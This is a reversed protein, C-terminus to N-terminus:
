NGVEEAYYASLIIKAAKFGDRIAKTVNGEEILDGGALVSERSTSLDDPSVRVFGREDLILNEDKFDPIAGIANVVADVQLELENGHSLEGDKMRVARMIIRGRDREMRIPKTLFMFQVGESKAAEYEKELSRPGKEWYVVLPQAGYRLLTRATDMATNGGETVIVRKGRFRRIMEEVGLEREMKFLDKSSITGSEEEGPIGLRKAVTLGTALFALTYGREFLDDLSLDGEKGISIGLEFEVGLRELDNILDNIVQDAPFRFRPTEWYPIGGPHNEREFITVSCGREALRWAAAMGAPGSGVVAVRVTSPLLNMRFPPPIEDRSERGWQWLFKFIEKNRISCRHGMLRGLFCSERCYLEDQCLFSTVGFLPNDSRLTLYAEPIEGEAILALIQNIRVNLPCGNRCPASPCHLCRRAEEVAEEEHIPPCTLDFDGILSEGKLTRRRPQLPMAGSRIIEKLRGGVRSNVAMLKVAVDVDGKVDEPPSEYISKLYGVLKRRLDYTSSRSYLETREIFGRIEEPIMGSIDGGAAVKERVLTSSLHALREPIEMALVKDSFKSRSPHRMFRLVDDITKDGRTFVILRAKDFLEGIEGEPNEYYKPDFIRVLTDYGVIFFPFVHPFSSRIARAKDVFRGHSSIGVWFRDYMRAVLHLMLLRDTLTAGFLRKDVNVKTLLLLIGGLQIEERTKLAMELHANTIPNFSASLVGLREPLTEHPAYTIEIRPQGSPDLEDVLRDLRLIEDIRDVQESM